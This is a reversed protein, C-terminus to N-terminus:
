SKSRLALIGRVRNVAAAIELKRPRAYNGILEGRSNVADMGIDNIKNDLIEIAETLSKRMESM